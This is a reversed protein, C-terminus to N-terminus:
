KNAPVSQFFFKRSFVDPFTKTKKACQAFFSQSKKFKKRILNDSTYEVHWYSCKSPFYKRLFSNLIEIRKRFKVPYFNPKGALKKESLKFFNCKADTYIKKSSFNKLFFMERDNKSLPRFSKPHLFPIRRTELFMKVFNKKSSFTYKKIM